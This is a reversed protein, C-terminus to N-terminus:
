DNLWKAKRLSLRGNEGEEWWYWKGFYSVIRVRM